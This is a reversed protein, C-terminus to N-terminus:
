GFLLWLNQYALWSHLFFEAQPRAALWLEDCGVSLRLRKGVVVVVVLHTSIHVVDTRSGFYKRLWLSYGPWRIVRIRGTEDTYEPPYLVSDADRPWRIGGVTLGASMQMNISLFWLDSIFELNLWVGDLVAAPLFIGSLSYILSYIPAYAKLQTGHDYHTYM